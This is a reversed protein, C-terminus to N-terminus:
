ANLFCFGGHVCLRQWIQKSSAQTRSINTVMYREASTQNCLPEWVRPTHLRSTLIELKVKLGKCIYGPWALSEFLEKQVDVLVQTLSWSCNLTPSKLSCKLSVPQCFRSFEWSTRKSFQYCFFMSSNVIEFVEDSVDSRRSCVVRVKLLFFVTRFLAKNLRWEFIELWAILPAM